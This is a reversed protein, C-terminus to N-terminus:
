IGVVTVSRYTTGLRELDAQDGTIVVGRGHETAAAVFQADVMDATGADAGFPVGDVLRAFDRDTDRLLISSDRGM